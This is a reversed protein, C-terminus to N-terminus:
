KRLALMKAPTRQNKRFSTNVLLTDNLTSGPKEGAAECGGRCIPQELMPGFRPM